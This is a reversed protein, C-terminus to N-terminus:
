DVFYETEKKYYTNMCDICILEDNIEFLYEDQIPEGCCVCKPLRALRREAEAEHREWLDYNDPTM